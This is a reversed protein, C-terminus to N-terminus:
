SKKLKKFPKQLGYLFSTTSTQLPKMEPISIIMFPPVFKVANAKRDIKTQKTENRNKDMGINFDM